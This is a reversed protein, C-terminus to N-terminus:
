HTRSSQSPVIVLRSVNSVASSAKDDDGILEDNITRMKHWKAMQHSEAFLM